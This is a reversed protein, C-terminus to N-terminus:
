MRKTPARIRLEIRPRIGCHVEFGDNVDTKGTFTIDDEEAEAYAYIIHDLVHGM